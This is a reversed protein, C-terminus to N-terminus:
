TWALTAANEPIGVNTDLYTKRYVDVGRMRGLRDASASIVLQCSTGAEHNKCDWTTYTTCLDFILSPTVAVTNEALRGCGAAQATM